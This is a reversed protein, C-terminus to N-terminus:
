RIWECAPIMSRWNLRGQSTWMREVHLSTGIDNSVEAAVGSGPAGVLAPPQHVLGPHQGDLPRLDEGLAGSPLADKPAGSQSRSSSIAGSARVEEAQEVCARAQEVSPYKLFWQESLYPEIPVHSRQSYGVNHVYPEEKELLLGQETLEEVAVKRAELRDLGEFDEGAAANM